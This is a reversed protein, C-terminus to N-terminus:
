QLYKEVKSATRNEAMKVIEKIDEDNLKRWRHIVKKGIVTKKNKYGFKQTINVSKYGKGM